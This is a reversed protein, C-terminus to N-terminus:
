MLFDRKLSLARKKTIKLVGKVEIDKKQVMADDLTGLRRSGVFYQLFYRCHLSFFM